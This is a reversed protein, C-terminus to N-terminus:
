QQQQKLNRTIVARGRWAYARTAFEQDSMKDLLTQTLEPLRAERFFAIPTDQKGSMAMRNMPCVTQCTDCGWALPHARLAAEEEQTLAGKKQTLASLCTWRDKSETCRGPCATRCAGCKICTGPNGTPIDEAPRGTVKEWSADTILEGLFIFSGYTPTILLGNQGIVGLGAQAAGLIEDVPSHDAFLAFRHAPFIDTLTPCITEALTKMYLHYDRPVAYLSVNRAPNQIDKAVLYPVAFFLATGSLPLAYKDLLYPKILRCSALPLAACPLGLLTSAHALITMDEM